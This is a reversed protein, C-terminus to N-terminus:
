SVEAELEDDETEATADHDSRTGEDRRVDSRVAELLDVQGNEGGIFRGFVMVTGDVTRTKSEFHGVPRFARIVGTRIQQQLATASQVRAKPFEKVVGWKGPNDRLEDAEESYTSKSARVADPNSWKVHQRREKM